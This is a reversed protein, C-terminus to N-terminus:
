QVGGDTSLRRARHDSTPVHRADVTNGRAAARAILLALGLIFGELVMVGHGDNTTAWMLAGLAPAALGLWRIRGAQAALMVACLTAATFYTAGSSGASYASLNTHSVHYGVLGAVAGVPAWAALLWIAFATIPGWAWEALALVVFATVVNFLGGVVGQQVFPATLTQWGGGGGSGPRSLTHLAGQWVLGLVFGATLLATLVVAIWPVGRRRLDARLDAGRGDGWPIDLAGAGARVALLLVLMELIREIYMMEVEAQVVNLYSELDVKFM